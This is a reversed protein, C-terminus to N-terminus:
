TSCAAPQTSSFASRMAPRSRFALYIRPTMQGADPSLWRAAKRTTENPPTRILRLISIPKPSARSGPGFGNVIRDQEVEGCGSQASMRALREDGLRELRHHRQAPRVAPYFVEVVDPHEAPREAELTAPKRLGDRRDKGAPLCRDRCLPGVRQSRCKRRVVLLLLLPACEDFVQWPSWALEGFDKFADGSFADSRFRPRHNTVSRDRECIRVFTCKTSSVSM